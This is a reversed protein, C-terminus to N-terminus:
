VHARGIQHLVVAADRVPKGNYDRVVVFRLVSMPGEYEQAWVVGVLGFGLVIVVTSVISFRKKMDTM